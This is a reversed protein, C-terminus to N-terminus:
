SAAGGSDFDAAEESLNSAIVHRTYDQYFELFLVRPLAQISQKKKKKLCGSSEFNHGDSM